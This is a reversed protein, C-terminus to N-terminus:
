VVEPPPSTLTPIPVFLGAKGILVELNTISINNKRALEPVIGRTPGEKAVQKSYDSIIRIKEITEDANSNQFNVIKNQKLLKAAKKAAALLAYNYRRSKGDISNQFYKTPEGYESGDGFVERLVLDTSAVGIKKYKGKIIKELKDLDKKFEPTDVTKTLYDSKFDIKGDYYGINKMTFSTNFSTKYKGDELVKVFQKQTLKKNEPKNRLEKYDSISLKKEGATKLEQKSLKKIIEGSEHKIDAKKLKQFNSEIRSKTVFESRSRPSKTVIPENPFKDLVEEVVQSVSFGKAALERILRLVKLPTTRGVNLFDEKRTKFPM